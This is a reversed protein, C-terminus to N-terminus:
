DCRQLLPTTYDDSWRIRLRDQVLLLQLRYERLTDEGCQAFALTESGSEVPTHAQWNLYCYIPGQRIWEETLTFPSGTSNDDSGSERAACQAATGWTALLQAPADAGAGPQDQLSFQGQAETAPSHFKLLAAFLGYILIKRPVTTAHICTM